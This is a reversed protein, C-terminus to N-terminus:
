EKTDTDEDSLPNEVESESNFGDKSVTSSREYKVFKIKKKQGASEGEKRKRERNKTLKMSHAASVFAASMSANMKDEDSDKDGEKNDIYFLIDDDVKKDELKSASHEFDAKSIDLVIKTRCRLISDDFVRIGQDELNLLWRQNTVWRIIQSPLRSSYFATNYSIARMQDGGKRFFEIGEHTIILRAMALGKMHETPVNIAREPNLFPYEVLIVADYLVKRLLVEDESSESSFYHMHRPLSRPDSFLPAIPFDCAFDGGAADPHPGFFYFNQFGSISGAAWIKLEKELEERAIGAHFKLCLQLLFLEAIVVGAIYVVGDCGGVSIRERIEGSVLPLFSDIGDNSDIWVRVLDAFPTILNLGVSGCEDSSDKCCCVNVYGLIVAVLSKVERMAKKERKSALDKGFLEVVVKYVEFVVPALLAISKLSGSSGSCASVLQFLDKSATIRDLIDGKQLNRSRFTLGAYVWISELPPDLKAQILEYFIHIFSSFNPTEKHIEALLEQMSQNLKLEYDKGILPKLQNQPTTSNTHEMLALAM